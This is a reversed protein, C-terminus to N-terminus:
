YPHNEIGYPEGIQVDEEGATDVRSNNGQEIFIQDALQSMAEDKDWHVNKENPKSLDQIGFFEMLKSLQDVPMDILKQYIQYRVMEEDDMIQTNNGSGIM